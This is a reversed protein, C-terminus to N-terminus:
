ISRELIKFATTSDKRDILGIEEFGLPVDCDPRNVLITKGEFQNLDTERSPCWNGVFIVKGIQSVVMEKKFQGVLRRDFNSNYFLYYLPLTGLSPVIIQNNEIEKDKLFLILEKSGGNRYIGKYSATHNSYQHWFYISELGLLLIILGAVIVKFRRNRILGLLNEFGVTALFLIPLILAASRHINPVDDVTLAAPIPAILLLYLFYYYILNRKKSPVLLFFFLCLGTLYFLGQGPVLYRDPLGGKVFLFGPSFYNLYQEAGEKFYGVIKNHFVRAEFIRDSGEDFIFAANIAEIKVKTEQNYFLSTQEFRGKGWPTTSILLTFAFFFFVVPLLSRKFVLLPLLAIPTFVRYGPYLFYTLFFFPFSLFFLKKQDEKLGRLALYFGLTFVALATVGEATARSLTIHWPCIALLFSCFLATRKDEFFLRGLFYFLLVTLSGILAIPFRVAFENVGFVLTGLGSLYMPVVNPFDGFRDFYLLPFFNGYLDKGNQFIFRGVYGNMLEDQHFYFPLTALHYTRLFLGLLFIAGLSLFLFYKKLFSSAKIM